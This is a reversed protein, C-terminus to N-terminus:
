EGVLFYIVGDLREPEIELGLGIAQFVDPFASLGANEREQETMNAQTLAGLGPGDVYLSLISRAPLAQRVTQFADSEVLGQGSRRAALAQGIAEPSSGLLLLDGDFGYSLAYGSAATGVQSYVPIGEVEGPAFTGGRGEMAARLNDLGGLDADPALFLLQTAPLDQVIPQDPLPPGIALAFDGTLPGATGLLDAELDLGVLDGLPVLANVDMSLIDRLWPWVTSADHGMLAIATGAPLATWDAPDVAPLDFLAALEAPAPGAPDLLGAVEVRMGAPEPLAALAIATLRQELMEAPSAAIAPAPVPLYILGLPAPPLRDRLAQWAPQAALSDAPALQVLDKLGPLPDFNYGTVLYLTGADITWALRESQRALEPNRGYYLTLGEFSEQQWTSGQFRAQLADALGEQDRVQALVYSGGGRYGNVMPGSLFDDLGYETVRFEGLMGSLAQQTMSNAELQRRFHNWHQGMEGGPQLNLFFAQQGDAPVKDALDDFAKPSDPQSTACGVTLSLGLTVLLLIPILRKM